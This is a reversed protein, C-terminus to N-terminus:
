KLIVKLVLKGWFIEKDVRKRSRLNSLFMAVFVETSFELSNAQRSIIGTKHKQSKTGGFHRRLYEWFGGRVKPFYLSPM